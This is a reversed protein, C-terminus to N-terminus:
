AVSCELSQHLMHLLGLTIGIAAPKPRSRNIRIMIAGEFDGSPLPSSMSKHELEHDPRDLGPVVNTMLAVDSSADTGVM